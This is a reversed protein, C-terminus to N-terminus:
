KKFFIMFIFFFLVLFSLFIRIISIFIQLQQKSKGDSFIMTYALISFYFLFVFWNKKITTKLEPLFFSVASMVAAWFLIEALVLIATELKKDFSALKRRKYGKIRFGQFTIMGNHELFDTEADHNESIKEGPCGMERM